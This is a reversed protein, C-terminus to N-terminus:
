NMYLKSSYQELKKYCKNITVESIKSINAIDKKSINIKNIRTYLYISGAAISPPTNEYIIKLEQAKNSIKKIIQIDNDNLNLKNCFRDIFDNSDIITNKNIRNTYEKNYYLIEQFKKCGKTIIVNKINFM